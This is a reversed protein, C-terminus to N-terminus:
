VVSKRDRPATASDNATAYHVSSKGRRDQVVTFAVTVTGADVETVSVDNVSISPVPAAVAPPITMSVGVVSIALLFTSARVHGRGRHRPSRHM